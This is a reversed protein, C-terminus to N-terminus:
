YLKSCSQKSKQKIKYFVCHYVNQYTQNIPAKFFIGEESTIQASTFSTFMEWWNSRDQQHKRPCDQRDILQRKLRWGWVRSPTHHLSYVSPLIIMPRVNIVNQIKKTLNHQVSLKIDYQINLTYLFFLTAVPAVCCSSHVSQNVTHLFTSTNQVTFAVIGETQKM